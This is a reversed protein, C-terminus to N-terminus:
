NLYFSVISLSLTDNSTQAHAPPIVPPNTKMVLDEARLYSVVEMVRVRTRDGPTHSHPTPSWYQLLLYNQLVPASRRSGWLRWPWLWSRDWVTPCRDLCSGVCGWPVPKLKVHSLCHKLRLSMSVTHRKRVQETPSTIPWSPISVLLFTAYCFVCVGKLTIYTCHFKNGCQRHEQWKFTKWEHLLKLREAMKLTRLCKFLNEKKKLPWFLYYLLWLDFDVRECGLM